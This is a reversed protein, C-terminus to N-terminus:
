PCGVAGEVCADIQGTYTIEIRAVVSPNRTSRIKIIGKDIAAVSCSGSCNTAYFLSIYEPRRFSVDLRNIGCHEVAGIGACVDYIEFSRGLNYLDITQVEGTEYRPVPNSGTYAFFAYSTAGPTFSVGYPNDFELSGGTSLGHASLSYSQAQRISLGIDYALTRLLIISDFSTFRFVLISIIILLIGISVVLEVLSFGRTSRYHSLWHKFSILM